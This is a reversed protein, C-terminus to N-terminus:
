TNVTKYENLEWKSKVHITCLHWRNGNNFIKNHSRICDIHWDYWLNCMWGVRYTLNENLTHLSRWKKEIAHVLKGECHFQFFFSIRSMCWFANIGNKVYQVESYKWINKKKKWLNLENISFRVIAKGNEAWYEFHEHTSNEENWCKKITTSRNM